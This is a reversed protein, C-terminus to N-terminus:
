LWGQDDEGKGKLLMKLTDRGIPINYDYSSLVRGDSANIVRATLYVKSAAVAYSGVVVTQARHKATIKGVERSLLLEGTGEKIFINTRLKMEITAYGNQNFRSSFHESAVRGFTSSQSLDDLNVFSAVLIPSDKAIGEPLEKLLVDAAKYNAAMIDTDKTLQVNIQKVLRQTEAAIEAATMQVEHYKSELERRNNIEKVKADTLAKSVRANNYIPEPTCGTLLFCILLFLVLSVYRTM